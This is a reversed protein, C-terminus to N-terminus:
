YVTGEAANSSSTETDRCMKRWCDSWCVKRTWWLTAGAELMFGGGRGDPASRACVDAALRRDHCSRLSEEELSEDEEECTM